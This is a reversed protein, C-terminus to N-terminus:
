NLDIWHRHPIACDAGISEPFYVVGHLHPVGRRQWETVWHIRIAGERRLRMLFANRIKKWGEVSPCDRVTSTFAVGAGTLGSEVVSQLFNTNNRASGSSWGQVRKKKGRLHTNSSPPVGMSLGHRRLILLGM